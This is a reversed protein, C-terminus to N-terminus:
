WFVKAKMETKLVACTDRATAAPCGHQSSHGHRDISCALGSTHLQHNIRPLIPVVTTTSKPSYKEISSSSFGFSGSLIEPLIPPQGIVYRNLSNLSNQSVSHHYRDAQGILYLLFALYGDNLVWRILSMDHSSDSIVEWNSYVIMDNSWHWTLHACSQFLRSKYMM